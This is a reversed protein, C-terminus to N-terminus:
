LKTLKTLKVLTGTQGPTQGVGQLLCFKDVGLLKALGFDAVPTIYFVLDKFLCEHQGLVLTNNIKLNRHLVPDAICTGIQKVILGDSYMSASGFQAFPIEDMWVETSRVNHASKYKENGVNNGDKTIVKGLSHFFGAKRQIDQNSNPM